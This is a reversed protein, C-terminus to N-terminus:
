SNYKEILACGNLVCKLLLKVYLPSFLTWFVVLFVAQWFDYFIFAIVATTAPILLIFNAFLVAFFADNPAIRDYRHDRPEVVGVFMFNFLRPTYIMLFFYIYAERMVM